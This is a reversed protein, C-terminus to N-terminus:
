ASRQAGQKGMRTRSPSTRRTSSPDFALEAEVAERIDKTKGVNGEM